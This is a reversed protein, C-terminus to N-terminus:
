RQGRKAAEAFPDISKGSTIVNDDVHNTHNGSPKIPRKVASPKNKAPMTPALAVPPVEVTSSPLAVPAALTPVSSTVATPTPAAAPKPRSFWGARAGLLLPLAVAAAVGAVLWWPRKSAFLTLTNPMSGTGTRPEGAVEALLEPTLCSLAIQSSHVGTGFLEVLFAPMTSSRFGCERVVDELDDALQAGTQYRRNPDRALMRLVIADLHTPVEPRLDSPAPITMDMVNRFTEAESTGRFLRRCTLMEWLMVGLSYLDSRGDLPEDRMREPAMYAIKGKFTGQETQEAAMESVVSAIGFDLLKVGGERLCMVNSPSVDRHVIGLSRGDSGTLGHAYGLCAAVEHAIHAAVGLPFPRKMDRLRRIIALVDRGRVYEMALFYHGDVNGFDYVQVINPHNLLSGIRAERVFMDVFKASDSLRSLIKKIVLTRKFGEAGPMIARFVEAMGGEGIRDLLVYRGFREPQIASVAHVDSKPISLLRRATSDNKRV